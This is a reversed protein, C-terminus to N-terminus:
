GVTVALDLRWAGKIGGAWPQSYVFHITTVGPATARFTFIEQGPAGPGAGVQQVVGRDVLELAGAGEWTPDEWSFGTSPNSCLQVELHEGVGIRAAELVPLRDAASAELTECDVAMVTSTVPEGGPSCASIGLVVLALLAIAIPRRM